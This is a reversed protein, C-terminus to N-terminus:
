NAFSFYNTLGILKLVKYLDVRVGRLIVNLEKETAFQAFDELARLDAADIRHVTSCDLVLDTRTNNPEQKAKELLSILSNEEVAFEAVTGM